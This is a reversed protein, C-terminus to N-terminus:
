VYAIMTFCNANLHKLTNQRYINNTQIQVKTKITKIFADIKSIM